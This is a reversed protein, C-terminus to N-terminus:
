ARGPFVTIAQHSIHRVQDPCILSVRRHQLRASRRGLSGGFTSLKRRPYLGTTRRATTWLTLKDGKSRTTQSLTVDAQTPALFYPAFESASLSGWGSRATSTMRRLSSASLSGWCSPATSM